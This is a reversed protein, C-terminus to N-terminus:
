VANLKAIATGARRRLAVATALLVLLGSAKLVDGVMALVWGEDSCELMINAGGCTAVLVWGVFRWRAWPMGHVMRQSEDVSAVSCSFESAFGKWFLSSLQVGAVTRSVSMEHDCEAIVRKPAGNARFSALGSEIANQEYGEIDIKLLDARRTPLLRDMRVFRLEASLGDQELGPPISHKLEEHAHGHVLGGAASASPDASLAVNYLTIRGGFRNLCASAALM